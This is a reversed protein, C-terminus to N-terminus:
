PGRAVRRAERRARRAVSWRRWSDRGLKPTFRVAQVLGPSARHGVVSSWVLYALKRPGTLHETLLLAENYAADAVASKAPHPDGLRQGDLRPAEDHDVMIAPDYVLRWGGRLVALGLALEWHVQAGGGRLRHDFGLQELVDRRYACNVGKLVTVARRPGRGLHHNGVVRGFWGLRGVTRGGSVDAWEPLNDRGGVGVIRSDDGFAAMLRALWDQRPRADDDTLAVVDTDAQRVGIEMAAIVGPRAVTALSLIDTDRQAEEIVAQTERDDIRAVVLIQAPLLDQELLASLCQRLYAPRRYSPVVVSATLEEPVGGLKHPLGM